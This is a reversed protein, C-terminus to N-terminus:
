KAPTPAGIVPEGAPPTAGSGKDGSKSSKRTRRPTVAENLRALGTRMADDRRSEIAKKEALETQGHILGDLFGQRYIEAERKGARDRKREEAM